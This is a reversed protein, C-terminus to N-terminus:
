TATRALSVPPSRIPVSYAIIRPVGNTNFRSINRPGDPAGHVGGGNPVRVARLRRVRCIKHLTGSPVESPRSFIPKLIGGLIGPAILRPPGIVVAPPRTKM